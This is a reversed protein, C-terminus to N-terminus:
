VSKKVKNGLYGMLGRGVCSVKLGRVYDRVDNKVWVMLYIGVMQKSAVLCYKDDDDEVVVKDREGFSVSGLDCSLCDDMAKEEDSSEVDYDSVSFRTKNPHHTPTM